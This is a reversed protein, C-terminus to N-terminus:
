NDALPGKVPLVGFNEVYIYYPQTAGMMTADEYLWTEDFIADSEGTELNYHGDKAMEAEVEAPDHLLEPAEKEAMVIATDLADYINEAGGRVNVYFKATNYGSGSWIHVVANAMQERSPYFSNVSYTNGDAIDVRMPYDDDPTVNDNEREVDAANYLNDSAWMELLKRAKEPEDGGVSSDDILIYDDTITIPMDEGNIHVSSQTGDLIDIATDNPDEADPFLESLDDSVLYVKQKNPDIAM